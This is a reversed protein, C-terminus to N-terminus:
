PTTDSGKLEQELKTSYKIQLAMKKVFGLNSSLQMGRQWLALCKFEERIMQKIIYDV